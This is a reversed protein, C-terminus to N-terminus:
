AKKFGIQLLEQQVSTYKTGGDRTDAWSMAQKKMQEITKVLLSDEVKEQSLSYNASGTHNITVKHYRVSPLNSEVDFVVKIHFGYDLYEFKNEMVMPITIEKNFLKELQPLTMLVKCSDLGDRWECIGAEVLQTMVSQSRAYGLRFKRGIWSPSGMQYQVVAIAIEEFLDDKEQQELENM